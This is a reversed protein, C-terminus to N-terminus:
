FQILVAALSYGLCSSDFWNVLFCLISCLVGTLPYCAQTHVQKAFDEMGQSRLLAAKVHYCHRWSGGDRQRQSSHVSASDSSPMPLAALVPLLLHEQVTPLTSPLHKSIKVLAQILRASLGTLIMPKILRTVGNEWM